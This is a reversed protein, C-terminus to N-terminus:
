LLLCHDLNLSLHIVNKPVRVESGNILPYISKIPTTSSVNRIGCTRSVSSQPKMTDHYICDCKVIHTQQLPLSRMQVYVYRSPLEADSPFNSHSLYRMEQHTKSPKPKLAACALTRFLEVCM